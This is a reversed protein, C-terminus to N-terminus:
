AQKAKNVETVFEDVTLDANKNRYERLLQNALQTLARNEDRSDNRSTLNGTGGLKGSFRMEFLDPLPAGPHTPKFASSPHPNAINDKQGIINSKFGVPPVSSM